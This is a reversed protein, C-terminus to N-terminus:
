ICTRSSSLSIQIFLMFKPSTQGCITHFSHLQIIDDIFFTCHLFLSLIYVAELTINVIEAQVRHMIDETSYDLLGESLLFNIVRIDDVELGYGCKRAIYRVAAPETGGYFMLPLYRLKLKLITSADGQTFAEAREKFDKTLVDIATEQAEPMEKFRDPDLYAGVATEFLWDMLELQVKKDEM